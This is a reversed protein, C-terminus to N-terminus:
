LLIAANEWQQPHPGSVAPNKELDWKEWVKKFNGGFINSVDYLKTFFAFHQGSLQRDSFVDFKYDIM